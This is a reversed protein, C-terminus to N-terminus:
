GSPLRLFYQPQPGDRQLGEEVPPSQGQASHPSLPCSAQYERSAQLGGQSAGFTGMSSGQCLLTLRPQSAARAGGRVGSRGVRNM